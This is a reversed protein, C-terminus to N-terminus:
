KLVQLGIACHLCRRHDCYQQKLHILAQTEGAVLGKIGCKNWNRIITNREPPLESIIQIAREKLTKLGQMKGYYFMFPVVLNIMLSISTDRGLKKEAVPSESKFHYHNDWYAERPKVMFGKIWQDTTLDQTLLSIFQPMNCILSALQAIRITPFHAPRMRMFKWQLAHIVQLGYKTKLFDFENKLQTPYAATLEKTLMGAVGFLIAEIQDARDGHKRLIKLPIRMSLNEMANANTPAGLNRAMMVFFAQEYDQSCRDVIQHIYITKSELREAMLRELWSTKVIDSVANISTACPVWEQNNMLRSYRELLDSDVKKYLEICAIRIGEQTLVPQDEEWVVHLIVNNYHSDKDHTHLYWASSRIHIEVHGAWLQDDIRIRAQLFDPGQDQNPYGYHIIEVRQGQTTFLDTHNFLKRQWIFHLLQEQM